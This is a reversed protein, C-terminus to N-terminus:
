ERFRLTEVHSILEDQRRAGQSERGSTKKTKKEFSCRSGYDKYLMRESSLITRDNVIAAPGRWPM